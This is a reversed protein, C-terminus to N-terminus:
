LPRFKKNPAPSQRTSPSKNLRGGLNAYLRKARQKAREDSRTQRAFLGSSQEARRPQKKQENTNNAYRGALYDISTRYIDAIKKLTEISPTTKNTEYMTYAERTIGLQEAIEKQTLKAKLREEKLRESLIQM